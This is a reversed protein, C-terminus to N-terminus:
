APKPASYQPQPPSLMNALLEVRFILDDNKREIALNKIHNMEIRENSILTKLRQALSYNVFENDDYLIAGKKLQLIRVSDCNSDLPSSYINLRSKMENELKIIDLSSSNRESLLSNLEVPELLDGKVTEVKKESNKHPHWKKHWQNITTLPLYKDLVYLKNEVMIGTAVHSPAYFFYIEKEPYLNFLLSSTLKAYDKCVGLKIDLILDIPMSSKFIDGVHKLPLKRYNRVMYIAVSLLTVFVSILVTLGWIWVSWFRESHNIIFFISLFITSVFLALIYRALPYREFWFSVNNNQWEQINALTEKDSTSRLRNALEIIRKNKRETLSPCHGSRCAEKYNKRQKAESIKKPPM